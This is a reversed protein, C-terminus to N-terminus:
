DARGGSKSAELCSELVSESKGRMGGLEERPEQRRFAQVAILILDIMGSMNAALVTTDPKVFGHEKVDKQESPKPIVQRETIGAIPFVYDIRDFTNIAQTFASTLSEWSSVDCKTAFATDSKTQNLESVFSQADTENIDAIFVRGRSGFSYTSKNFTQYSPTYYLM